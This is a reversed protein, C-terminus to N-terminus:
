THKENWRIERFVVQTLNQKLKKEVSKQQHGAFSDRGFQRLCWCKPMQGTHISYFNGFM